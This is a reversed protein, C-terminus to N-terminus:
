QPGNSWSRQQNLPSLSRVCKGCCFGSHFLLLGFQLLAPRGPGPSDQSQPNGYIQTWLDKEAQWRRAPIRAGRLVLTLWLPPLAGRCRALRLTPWPPLWSSCSLPPERLLPQAGPQQQAEEKRMQCAQPAPHLHPAELSGHASSPTRPPTLSLPLCLPESLHPPTM